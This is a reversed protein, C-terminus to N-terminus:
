DAGDRQAQSCRIHSLTNPDFVNLQAQSELQQGANIHLTLSTLHPSELHGLRRLFLIWEM